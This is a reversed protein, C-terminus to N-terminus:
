FTARCYGRCLERSGLVIGWCGARIIPSLRGIMGRCYSERGAASRNCAQMCRQKEVPDRSESDDEEPVDDTGSESVTSQFIYPTPDEVVLGSGSLQSLVAECGWPDERCDIGPKEYTVVIEDLPPDDWLDFRFGGGLGGGIDLPM